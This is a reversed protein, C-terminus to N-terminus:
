YAYAYADDVFRYVTVSVLEFRPIRRLPESEQTETRKSITSPLASILKLKAGKAKRARMLSTLFERSLLLPTTLSPSVDSM